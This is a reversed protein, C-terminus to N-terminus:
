PMEQVSFRCVGGATTGLLSLTGSGVVRRWQIKFTHSGASLANTLFSFSANVRRNATTLMVGGTIGDAAGTLSSGDMLVDLCYGDGATNSQIAGAFSILVRRAGTTITLAMNTGDIDAFTGSAITYDGSTRMYAASGFAAWALGTSQSSDATLLTGNSGVSRIAPTDNASAGLIDGKAAFITPSIGGGAIADYLEKLATEVDTATFVAATDLVSIASADHADSTDAIHDAIGTLEVETGADNKAYWKGDSKLYVLGLGSAPTSPAASEAFTVYPFENDEAPLTAM